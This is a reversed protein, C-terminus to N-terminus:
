FGGIVGLDASTIPMLAGAYALPDVTLAPDLMSPADLIPNATPDIGTLTPDIVGAGPDFPVQDLTSSDVPPAPLGGSGPDLVGAAAGTAGGGVIGKSADTGAAGGLSNFLSALGPVSITTGLPGTSYSGLGPVNISTFRRGLLQGSTYSAGGAQVRTRSGLQGTLLLYGGVLIAGAILLENTEAETAM